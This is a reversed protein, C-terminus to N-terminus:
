YVNGGLMYAIHVFCEFVLQEQIERYIELYNITISM